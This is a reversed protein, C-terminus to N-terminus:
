DYPNQALVEASEKCAAEVTRAQAAQVGLKRLTELRREGVVRETTETCPCFIGDVTVGDAALLPGFTFRVYVEELPLNRAFFMLVDESWTAKGTEIVGELMPGITHWIESWCERGPIGLVGPHKNEGLFSIYEDNYLVSFEQGWYMVVPIRSTLCLSVAVRLNGPWTEPTGLATKSWDFARMRGAMESDGPFLVARSTSKPNGQTSM